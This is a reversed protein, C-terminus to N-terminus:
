VLRRYQTRGVSGDWREISCLDGVLGVGVPDHALECLIPGCRGAVRSHTKLSHGTSKFPGKESLAQAEQELDTPFFCFLLDTDNYGFIRRFSRMEKQFADIEMCPAILLVIMFLIRFFFNVDRRQTLLPRYHQRLKIGYQLIAWLNTIFLVAFIFATVSSSPDAPFTIGQNSTSGNLIAQIIDLEFGLFGLLGIAICLRRLTPIPAQHIPSNQPIEKRETEM